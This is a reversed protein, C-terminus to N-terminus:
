FAIRATPPEKAIIEGVGLLSIIKLQLCTSYAPLDVVLWQM